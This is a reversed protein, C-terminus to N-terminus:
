PSGLLLHHAEDKLAMMGDDDWQDYTSLLINEASQFTSYIVVPTSKSKKASMMFDHLKRITYFYLEHHQKYAVLLLCLLILM